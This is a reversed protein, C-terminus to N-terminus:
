AKKPSVTPAPTTTPKAAPMITHATVVGPPVKGVTSPAGAIAQTRAPQPTAAPPEEGTLGRRELDQAYSDEAEFETGARQIQRTESNLFTRRAIVKTTM